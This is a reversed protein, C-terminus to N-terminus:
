YEDDGASRLNDGAAGIANRYMRDCGAAVREWTLHNRAREKGREALRGREDPDRLVRGLAAALADVNGEPVLEGSDGLVDPLSGSDYAIVPTGAAMAQAAVRGFQEKWSRTTLSPVLLVDYNAIRVLAEDQSVADSFLVHAAVGLRAATARLDSEQSGSGLFELTADVDLVVKAFASIAHKGGKYPELRGVFGVRLGGDTQIPERGPMSVGLPLVHVHGAFGKSRLVEGAERSCPYAAAATQLARAELQRFPPPYRKRINQATYVCVAADPVERRAAWLAAAVSLSYPEEHLDIIHPQVDRLVARFARMSYWFLIPHDRGMTELVHLTVEPDPQARVVAGGETWAPPCILHMDYGYRRRLLRDRERYEDVVASHYVRLVRTASM